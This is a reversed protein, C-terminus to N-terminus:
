LLTFRAHRGLGVVGTVSSIFFLGLGPAIRAPMQLKCRAEVNGASSNAFGTSTIVEGDFVTAPATAKAVFAQMQNSSVVDVSEANWLIAGNVNAAATFVTLPTNAAMTSTNNWHGTPLEPRRIADVDAAVLDVPVTGVISVAGAARRTGAEGTGYAFRITQASASTIQIVSFATNKLNFSAEAARMLGRQAGYVDSLTVNVPFTSDILEFYAGTLAFLRSEGAAFTATVIEIFSARDNM